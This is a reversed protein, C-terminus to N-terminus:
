NTCLKFNEAERRMREDPNISRFQSIRQHSSPFSGAGGLPQTRDREELRSVNEAFTMLFLLQDNAVNQVLAGSEWRRLSAAGIGTLRALDAITMKLRKRIECVERPTMVGLHRCVAEHRLDEAEDDTFSLDCAECYRVPVRAELTVADDSSGYPFSQTDFSTQIETNGCNLCVREEAAPFPFVNKTENMVTTM